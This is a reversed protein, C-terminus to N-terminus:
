RTIGNVVLCQFENLRDCGVHGWSLDFDWFYALYVIIMSAWLIVTFSQSSYTDAVQDIASATYLKRLPQSETKDRLSSSSTEENHNSTTHKKMEAKLGDVINEEHVSLHEINEQNEEDNSMGHTSTVRTGQRFSSFVDQYHTSLRDTWETHYLTVDSTLARLLSATTLETDQGGAVEIMVDLTEDDVHVEGHFELVQKLFERDLKPTEVESVLVALVREM